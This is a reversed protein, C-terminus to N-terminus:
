SIENKTKSVQLMVTLMNKNNRIFDAIIIGADVTLKDDHNLFNIDILAQRILDDGTNTLPLTSSKSQQRGLLYDVSVDFFDAIQVLTDNDPKRKNSEYQSLTVNGINIQKSLELQTLNKSERLNRLREGFM